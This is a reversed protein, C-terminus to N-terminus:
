GAPTIVAKVTELRAVAELAQQSDEIRYRHTVVEALPFRQHQAQVVQLAQYLHRPQALATGIIRLNRNNIQRPEVSVAGPASWLGVVLYRGGRALLQLGEGFAPLAGAAEIVVDAGRGGTLQWVRAIRGEPDALEDMDLTYTAGFQRAVALRRAPAGIVILPAAGSLQALLTAALGVPGCGQVVVSMGPRIGELREIGQLMTPLACGLAIVADSPTDDPVRYFPLGARLTAYECYSAATPGGADGFVGAFANECMSVDGLVTCAYCRQCPAVPQWYVRDGVALPAGAYDTGVGAGLAEVVGVGEHGLVVPGPLPVEGRWFHVDTGCVGGHTLRVLVEGTGPDAVPREWIELPQNAAVLVARKGTRQTM